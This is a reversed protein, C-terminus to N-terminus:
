FLVESDKHTLEQREPFLFPYEKVSELMRLNENVRSALTDAQAKGELLAATLREEM